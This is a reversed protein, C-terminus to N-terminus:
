VDAGAGSDEPAGGAAAELESVFDNLSAGSDFLLSSAVTYSHLNSLCDIILM